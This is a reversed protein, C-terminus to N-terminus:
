PILRGASEMTYATTHITTHTTTSTISIYAASIFIVITYTGARAM